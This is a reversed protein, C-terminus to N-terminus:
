VWYGECRQNSVKESPRYTRKEVKGCQKEYSAVQHQREMADALAVQGSLNSQAEAGQRTAMRSKLGAGIGRAGALNSSVTDQTKQQQIDGQMTALSKEKGSARQLMADAISQLKKQHKLQEVQKPSGGTLFNGVGRFGKEIEKFLSM